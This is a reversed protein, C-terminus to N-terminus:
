LNPVTHWTNDTTKFYELHGSTTNFRVPQNTPDETCCTDVFAVNFRTLMKKFFKTLSFLGNPPNDTTYTIVQGAQIFYETRAM